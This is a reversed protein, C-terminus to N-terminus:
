LLGKDKLLQITKKVGSSTEELARGEKGYACKQM